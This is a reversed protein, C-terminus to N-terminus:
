KCIFAALFDRSGRLVRYAYPPHLPLLITFVLRCINLGSNIFVFVYFIDLVENISTVPQHCNVGLFYANIKPEISLLGDNCNKFYNVRKVM